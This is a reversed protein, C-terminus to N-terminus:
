MIVIAYLIGGCQARFGLQVLAICMCNPCIVPVAILYVYYQLNAHVIKPFIAYDALRLFYIDVGVNVM